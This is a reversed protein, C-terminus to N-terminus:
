GLAGSEVLQRLGREDVNRVSGDDAVVYGPFFGFPPPPRRSPPVREIRYIFFWGGEVRQGGAVVWRTGPLRRTGALHRRAATLVQGPVPSRLQEVPVRSVAKVWGWDLGRSAARLRDFATAWQEGAPDVGALECEARLFTGEPRGREDLWDTYVLRAAQDGFHARIAALFAGEEGGM